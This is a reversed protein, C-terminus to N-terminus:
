FLKFIYKGILFILSIYFIFYLSMYVCWKASTWFSPKTGKIFGNKKWLVNMFYRNKHKVAAFYNDLGVHCVNYLWEPLLGLNRLDEPEIQKDEIVKYNEELPYKLVVSSDKESLPTEFVKIKYM